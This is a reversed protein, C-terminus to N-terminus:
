FNINSNIPDELDSRVLEGTFSKGAEGVEKPILNLRGVSKPCEEWETPVLVQNTPIFKGPIVGKKAGTEENDKFSYSGDEFEIYQSYPSMQEIDKETVAEQEGDVVPRNVGIDPIEQDSPIKSSWTELDEKTLDVQKGKNNWPYNYNKILSGRDAVEKYRFRGEAFEKNRFSAKTMSISQPSGLNSASEPNHSSGKNWTSNGESDKQTITDVRNRVIEGKGNSSLTYGSTSLRLSTEKAAYMRAASNSSVQNDTNAHLRATSATLNLYSNEELSSLTLTNGKDVTEPTNTLGESTRSSSIMKLESDEKGVAVLVNSASTIQAKTKGHILVQAADSAIQTNTGSRLNIEKKVAVARIDGLDAKLVINEKEARILVDKQRSNINVNGKGSDLSATGGDAALLLDENAKVRITGNHSVIDLDEQIRLTGERTASLQMDRGAQLKIDRRAAFVIDENTMSFISGWTDEAYISGDNGIRFSASTEEFQEEDQGEYPDKAKRAQAALTESEVYWDKSHDRFRRIEEHDVYHNHWEPYQLYRGAKETTDWQYFKHLTPAYKSEKVEPDNPDESKRIVATDGKENHHPERIKKPVRIRSVKELVVERASRVRIAGDHSVVVEALGVPSTTDLRRNSDGRRSIFLRLNDGLWGAFAHIKWKGMRDYPEIRYRPKGPEPDHNGIEENPRSSGMTEFQQTAGYIEVNVEGEDNYVRKEGFDTFVDLNRTIHRTLDDIKHYQVQALSGAGIKVVPGRLISIVGGDPGYKIFDGQMADFAGGTRYSVSSRNEKRMAETVPTVNSYSVPPHPVNNANGESIKFIIIPKAESQYLLVRDWIKLIEDGSTKLLGTDRSFSVDSATYHTTNVTYTRSEVNVASIRGEEFLRLQNVINKSHYFDQYNQM